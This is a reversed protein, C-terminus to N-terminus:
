EKCSATLDTLAKQEKKLDFTSALGTNYLREVMGVIENQLTLRQNCFETSGSAANLKCLLARDIDLQSSMGVVYASVAKDVSPCANVAKQADNGNAALALSSLMLTMLAPIIIKM